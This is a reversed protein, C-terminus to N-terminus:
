LSESRQDGATRQQDAWELLEEWCMVPIGWNVADRVSKGQSSLDAAVVAEYGDRKRMSNTGFVLGTHACREQIDAKSLGECISGAKGPGGSLYVKMGRRFQTRVRWDTESLTEPALGTAESFRALLAVEDGSLRRDSEAKRLLRARMEEAQSALVGASTILRKANTVEGPSGNAIMSTALGLTALSRSEADMAVYADSEFLYDLAVLPSRSRLYSGPDITRKLLRFPTTQIRKRHALHLKGFDFAAQEALEMATPQEGVGFPIDGLEFPVGEDVTGDPWNSLSLLDNVRRGVLSAGDLALGLLDRAEDISPCMTLDSANIGITAADSADRGPAILTSLRLVETKGDFRIVAVEVLKRHKDLGTTHLGIFAVPGALLPTRERTASRYFRRIAPSVKVHRTELPQTLTLGSLSTCRSLAVYTQGHEFISACDFVVRDFTKGQSKHVTVAWALQMPFQTFTGVVVKEIRGDKRVSKHIEWTHRRVERTENIEPIYVTVTEPDLERVEAVTGNAYGDQNVLMMVQAGPKLRLEQLDEFKKKDVEGEAYAPYLIDRGDISALHANNIDRVYDRKSAITMSRSAEAASSPAYSHQHGADYRNNLAELHRGTFSGDRIANLIEVFTGDKQRFVQTLEITEFQSEHFAKSSFFFDTAYYIDRPEDETVPPLQFLDGILVVQTGGFPEHSERARRLATSVRDMLDASVMSVEDVVLVDIDALHEPPSYRRLDSTLDSRFAFYRHITTGDVNLAAVGTPAVVAIQKRKNRECILRLLTSKGTGAKGTIFLNRGQQVETLCRNFEDTIILPQKRLKKSAKAM